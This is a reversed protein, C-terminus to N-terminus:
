FHYKGKEGIETLDGYELTEFDKLLQCARVVQYYKEADYQKGFLINDRITNNTLWPSQPCFAVQKRELPMHRRGSLKKMEGLMALLLSTKGAGTKGICISLKGLPFDVSVDRLTFSAGGAGNLPSPHPSHLLPTQEEQGGSPPPAEEAVTQSGHYEFSAESLAIKFSALTDTDPEFVSPRNDNLDQVEEEQLFNYIREVNIRVDLFKAVKSGLGNLTSNMEGMLTISSFATAADLKHGAVVTYFFFSLFTILISSGSGIISVLVNDYIRDWISKIEAVRAEIM